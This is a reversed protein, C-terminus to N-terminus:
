IIKLLSPNKGLSSFVKFLSTWNFCQYSYTAPLSSQLIDPYSSEQTTLMHSGFPVQLFPESLPLFVDTERKFYWTPQFKHGLSPGVLHGKYWSFM